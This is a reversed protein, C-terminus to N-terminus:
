LLADLEEVPVGHKKLLAKWDMDQDSNVNVGLDKWVIDRWTPEKSRPTTASESPAPEESSLPCCPNTITEAKTKKRKPSSRDKKASGRKKNTKGAEKNETIAARTKDRPKGAAKTQQSFTLSPLENASEQEKKIIKAAESLARIGDFCLKRNLRKEEPSEPERRRLNYTKSEM